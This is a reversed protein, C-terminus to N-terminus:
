PHPVGVPDLFLNESGLVVPVFWHQDIPIETTLALTITQADSKEGNAGPYHVAGPAVYAYDAYAGIRFRNTQATGWLFDQKFAVSAANQQSNTAQEAQVVSSCALMLTVCQAILRLGGTRDMNAPQHNVTVSVMQASRM